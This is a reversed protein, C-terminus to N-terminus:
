HNYNWGYELDCITVGTGTGGTQTWAYEADIGTPTSSAPDEYNQQPQYNTPLPALMPKPVPRALIIGPLSELESSVAWVDQDVSIKLRYINNLNYLQEGTNAEGKAQLQDLRAEPVDCIRFWEAETSQSLIENVGALADTMEDVLAGRRMRVKADWDFMVEILNIECDYPGSRNINESSNNVAETPEANLNGFLFFSVLFLMGIVLILKVSTM